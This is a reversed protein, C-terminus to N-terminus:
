GRFVPEPLGQTGVDLAFVSGSLPASARQEPSLGFSASTVYLTKLGPGGFACSTPRPVPMPITRDVRGDPAYRTIKGGDFHAVWYAGDVDVTAGDPIGEGESFRAFLRRNAIAGDALDFDFAYVARDQSDAFYMTRNDPSWSIGNSVTFGTAMERCSGDPDLRYLAATGRERKEHVTGAWFRGARDVRGDNFRINHRGALPQALRKVAGTATDFLAFGLRLSAVLGDPRFGISGVNEPLPWETVSGEALDARLISPKHIDVWYLVSEASSWIPSEGLM